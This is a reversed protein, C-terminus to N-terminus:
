PAMVRGPADKTGNATHCDNCDGSTQAANMRREKGNQTVKATYPMTLKTTSYFNGVGNATLKLEKGTADTIVVVAGSAGNCDNPEHATPYVTGAITYRPGEREDNHCAICTGGPHMSSSGRDGRTWSTGSTCVFPTDYPSPAVTGGATQCSGSPMGDAVWKELIATDAAPPAGTPPMPKATDKMRALSLEAVTKSPDTKSKAMLDARSAISLPNGVPPTGHCALCKDLLVKAVDCPLDNAPTVTGAGDRSAVGGDDADDNLGAGTFCAFTTTTAIAFALPLVSLSTRSAM